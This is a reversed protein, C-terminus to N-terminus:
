PRRRLSRVGDEDDVIDFKRVHNERWEPNFEDLVGTPTKMQFACDLVLDARGFAILDIHRVACGPLVPTLLWGSPDVVMAEDALDLIAALRSLQIRNDPSCDGGKRWKRVGSLSVGVALAIDSWGMGREDALESLLALHGQRSKLAARENLDYDQITRHLEEVDEGLFRAEDRISAVRNSLDAWQPSSASTPATKQDYHVNGSATAPEKVVEGSTRTISL